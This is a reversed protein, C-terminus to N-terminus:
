GFVGKTEWLFIKCMWVRSNGLSSYLMTSSKFMNFSFTDTMSMHLIGWCFSNINCAKFDTSVGIVLV